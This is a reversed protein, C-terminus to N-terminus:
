IEIIQTVTNNQTVPTSQVLATIKFLGVEITKRAPHGDRLLKDGTTQVGNVKKERLELERMLGQEVSSVVVLIM